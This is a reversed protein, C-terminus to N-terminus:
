VDDFHLHCGPQSQFNGDKDETEFAEIDFHLHCGPQSQFNM